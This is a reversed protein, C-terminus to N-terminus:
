RPMLRSLEDLVLRQRMVVVLREGLATAERAIADLPLDPLKAGALVRRRFMDLEFRVLQRLAEAYPELIEMPFVEGLGKRRTEDIVELLELDGDAYVANPGRAAVLDLSQLLQLDADSVDLSQLVERRTRRRPVVGRRQRAEAAGSRIAPALAGLQRRQAEDLEKRIQASPPPELVDALHELPLFCERQLRKIVRVRDALRADYYAMNPSTKHTSALLGERVYHKITPAPVDSRRALESIRILEPDSTTRRRASRKSMARLTHSVARDM